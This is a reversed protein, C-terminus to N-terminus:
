RRARDKVRELEFIASQENERPFPVDPIPKDLFRCLPEWGLDTELQMSLFCEGRGAFYHRVETEHALYRRLFLTRDFTTQGYAMVKHVTEFFGPDRMQWFSRGGLEPRPKTGEEYHREVSQLWAQPDRQVYIFKTDPFLQHLYRYILPIPFDNYFEHEALVSRLRKENNLSALVRYPYHLSRFGLIEMARALSTTATKHWSVGLIM